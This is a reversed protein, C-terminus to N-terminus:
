PEEEVFLRLQVPRDQTIFRILSRTQDPDGRFWGTGDVSEVGERECRILRELSNVRGVHVRKFWSRWATLWEWKWEKSGGVFVLDASEPVDRREMGDQVVFALPVGLPRLKPEWERWSEITRAADCVVDPVAIWRPKHHWTQAYQVLRLFAPEDFETGNSWASFAGNDLAYPLYPPPNRWGGPSMLLGMAGPFLRGLQRVLAGTNNSPMVM